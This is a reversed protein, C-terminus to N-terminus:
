LITYRTYLLTHVLAWFQKGWPYLLAYGMHVGLDAVRSLSLPM